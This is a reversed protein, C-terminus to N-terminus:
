RWSVPGPFRAVSAPLDEPARAFIRVAYRTAVRSRSKRPLKKFVHVKTCEKDAPREVLIFNHSWDFDCAHCFGAQRCHGGQKQEAAAVGAALSSRCGFGCRRGALKFGPAESQLF